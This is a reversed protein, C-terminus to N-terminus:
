PFVCCVGVIAFVGRVHCVDGVSISCSIPAVQMIYRRRQQNEARRAERMEELLEDQIEPPLAAFVGMDMDLYPLDRKSYM